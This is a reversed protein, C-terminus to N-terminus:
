YQNLVKLKKEFENKSKYWKRKEILNEYLYHKYFGVFFEGNPRIIMRQTKLEDSLFIKKILFGYDMYWTHEKYSIPHGNNTSYFHLVQAIKKYKKNRNKCKKHALIFGKHTNYHEHAFSYMYKIEGDKVYESPKRLTDNYHIIIIKTTDIHNRSYLLKFLQSKVKPELLGFYQKLRLKELVLTDTSFRQGNYLGSKAKRSFISKSIYQNNEDVYVTDSQANLFLFNFCFFLSLFSKFSMRFDCYISLEYFTFTIFRMARYFSFGVM